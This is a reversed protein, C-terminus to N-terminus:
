WCCKSFMARSSGHAHSQVIDSQAFLTGVSMTRTPGLLRSRQSDPRNARSVMMSPVTTAHKPATLSSRLPSTPVQVRMPYLKMTRSVPPLVNFIFDRRTLADRLFTQRTHNFNVVRTVRIKLIALKYIRSDCPIRTLHSLLILPTYSSPACTDHKHLRRSADLSLFLKVCVVPCDEPKRM